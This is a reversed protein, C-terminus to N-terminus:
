PFEPSSPSELLKFLGQVVPGSLAQGAEGLVDEPNVLIAQSSCHTLGSSLCPKSLPPPTLLM